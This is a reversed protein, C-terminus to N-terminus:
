AKNVMYKGVTKLGTNRSGGNQDLTGGESMWTVATGWGIEEM